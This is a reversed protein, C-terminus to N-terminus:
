AATSLFSASSSSCAMGYPSSSSSYCYPSNNYVPFNNFPYNEPRAYTRDSNRNDYGSSSPYFPPYPPTPMITSAHLGNLDMRNNCSATEVHQHAASGLANLSPGELVSNAAPQLLQQESNKYGYESTSHNTLSKRRLTARYNQVTSPKASSQHNAYSYNPFYNQEASFSRPSSSTSSCSHPETTIPQSFPVEFSCASDAAASTSSDTATTSVTNTNKM